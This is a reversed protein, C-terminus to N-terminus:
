EEHDGDNETEDAEVIEVDQVAEELENDATSMLSGIRVHDMEVGVNSLAIAPVGKVIIPEGGTEIRIKNESRAIAKTWFILNRLIDANRQRGGWIFVMRGMRQGGFPHEGDSTFLYTPEIMLFFRNGLRRFKIIAAHHVWFTAGNLRNIKKAAVERPKDKTNRWVRTAGSKDPRFFFRGKEDKKVALKSLHSTLAQNILYMWWKIKEAEVMWDRSSEK